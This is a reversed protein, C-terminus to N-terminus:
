CDLCLVGLCLGVYSRLNVAPLPWSLPQTPTSGPHGTGWVGWRDRPLTLPYRLVQPQPRQGEGVELHPASFPQADEWVSTPVKRQKEDDGAKSSLCFWVMFWPKRWSSAGHSDNGVFQRLIWTSPRATETLPLFQEITLFDPPFM